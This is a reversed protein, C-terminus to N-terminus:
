PAAGRVAGIRGLLDLAGREDCCGSRPVPLCGVGLRHEIEERLAAHAPDTALPGAVWFKVDGWGLGGRVYHWAHDVADYSPPAVYVLHQFSRRFAAQQLLALNTRHSLNDALEAIHLGGTSRSRWARSFALSRPVFSEPPMSVDSAAGVADVFDRVPLDEYKVRVRRGPASLVDFRGTAVRMLDRVCASGTKKEYTWDVGERRAADALGMCCTTKGSEMAHGTVLVGVGDGTAGSGALAVPMRPLRWTRDEGDVLAGLVRIRCREHPVALAHIPGILNMAILDSAVSGCRLPEQLVGTVPHRVGGMLVRPAYRNGVAIAVLGERVEEAAFELGDACPAVSELGVFLNTDFRCAPVEIVEGLLVENEHVDRAPDYRLLGEAFRPLLHRLASGTMIGAPGIEIRKIM